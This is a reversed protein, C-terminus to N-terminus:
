LHLTQPRHWDIVDQVKAKMANEAKV